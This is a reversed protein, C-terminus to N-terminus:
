KKKNQGWYEELISLPKKATLIKNLQSQNLGLALNFASTMHEYVEQENYFEEVKKTTETKKPILLYATMFGADAARLEFEVKEINENFVQISQANSIRFETDTVDSKVVIISIRGKNLFYMSKPIGRDIQVFVGQEKVHEVTKITALKNEYICVDGAFLEEDKAIVTKIQGLM